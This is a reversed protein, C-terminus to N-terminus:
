YTFLLMLDANKLNSHLVFIEIIIGSIPVIFFFAIISLEYLGVKKM